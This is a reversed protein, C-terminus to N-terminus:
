SKVDTKSAFPGLVESSQEIVTIEVRARSSAQGSTYRVSIDGDDNRRSAFSSGGRPTTAKAERHEHVPRSLNVNNADFSQCGSRSCEAYESCSAVAPTPFCGLGTWECAMASCPKAQLGAPLPFAEGGAEIVAGSGLAAPAEGRAVISSIAINASPSDASLKIPLLLVCTITKDPKEGSQSTRLSRM